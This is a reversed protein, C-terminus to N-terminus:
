SNRYLEPWRWGPHDKAVAYLLSIDEAPMKNKDLNFIDRPKNLIDHTQSSLIIDSILAYLPLTYNYEEDSLIVLDVKLDMLRWYEHAKLIENLIDVSDTNNLVVFM